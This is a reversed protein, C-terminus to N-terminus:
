LSKAKGVQGIPIFHEFLVYSNHGDVLGCGHIMKQTFYGITKNNGLNQVWIVIKEHLMDLCELAM